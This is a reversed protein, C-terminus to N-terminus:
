NNIETRKKAGEKFGNEFAGNFDPITIEKLNAANASRM